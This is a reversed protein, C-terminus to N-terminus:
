SSVAKESYLDDKVLASSEGKPVSTLASSEDKQVSALASAPSKEFLRASLPMDFIKQMEPSLNIKTLSALKELTSEHAQHRQQSM